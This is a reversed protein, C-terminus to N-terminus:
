HERTRCPPLPLITANSSPVRVSRSCALHRRDFHRNAHAREVAALDVAVRFADDFHDVIRRTLNIVSGKSRSLM